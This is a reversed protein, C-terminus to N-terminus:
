DMPLQHKKKFNVVRVEWPLESEPTQRALGVVEFGLQMLAAAINGGVFGTSGTIAVKTMHLGEQNFNQLPGFIIAL